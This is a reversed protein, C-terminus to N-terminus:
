GLLKRDFGQVCNYDRGHKSVTNVRSKMVWIISPASCLGKLRENHTFNRAFMDFKSKLKRDM